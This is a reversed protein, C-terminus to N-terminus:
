IVGESEIMEKDTFPSTKRRKNMATNGVDLIIGPM